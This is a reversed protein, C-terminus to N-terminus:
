IRLTSSVDLCLHHEWTVYMNTYKRTDYKRMLKLAKKSYMIASITDGFLIFFLSCRTIGYASMVQDSGGAWDFFLSCRLVRFVRCMKSFAQVSARFSLPVESLPVDLGPVSSTVASSMLLITTVLHLPRLSPPRNMDNSTM